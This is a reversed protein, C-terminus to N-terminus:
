PQAPVAEGPMRRRIERHARAAELLLPELGAYYDTEPLARKRRKWQEVRDLAALYAEVLEAPVTPPFTFDKIFCHAALAGDGAAWEDAEVARGGAAEEALDVDVLLRTGLGDGNDDILGHETSILGESVYWAETLAAAQRGAELVSIREDRNVDASGEELGQLFFEMFRTANKENVSKTATLIIRDPGSLVNIFGAGASASNIVVLRRPALPELLGKFDEATPDPGPVHFRSIERLFSGHGILYVFLDDDETLRPQLTRIAEAITEASTAKWTASGEGAAETLLLVNEEPHGMPEILTKRLRHGWEAFQRRYEDDGGSGCVILDYPAAAAKPVGLAVAVVLLWFPLGPPAREPRKM